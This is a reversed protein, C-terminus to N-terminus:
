GNLLTLSRLNRRLPWLYYESCYETRLILSALDRVQFKLVYVVTSPVLQDIINDGLIRLLLGYYFTKFSIVCGM